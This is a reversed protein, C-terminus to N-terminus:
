PTARWCFRVRQPECFRAVDQSSFIPVHFNSDVPFLHYFTESLRQAWGMGRLVSHLLFNSEWAGPLTNPLKCLNIWKIWGVAQFPFYYWELKGAPFIYLLLTLSVAQRASLTLLASIWVQTQMYLGLWQLTRGRWSPWVGVQQSWGLPKSLLYQPRQRFSWVAYSGQDTDGLCGRGWLHGWLLEKRVGKWGTLFHIHWNTRYTITYYIHGYRM